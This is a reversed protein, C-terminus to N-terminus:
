RRSWQFGVTVVNYNDTTAVTSRAAINGTADTRIKMEGQGVASAPTWGINSIGTSALPSTPTTDAMDPCYILVFGQSGADYASAMINAVVSFNLPVSLADTRRSTTLTNTLNVDSRPVSWLFELGGGATEYTKFAVVAASARKFWGILRKFDYNTPMTPATSSTSFLVDTVGTDSRAIAWIYYDTNAISGTDLGGQNTGVAWSADLRKTLASLQIWYANTADMCGGAAIDIDNTADSGNNAYTLGNIHGSFPTVDAVGVPAASRAMVVSGNSGIAKRRVILANGGSTYATFATTDIGISFTTSSLVTAVFRRGNLQTMGSINELKGADGSTLGHDVTTTIVGPNAQTIASISAGNTIIADGKTTLLSTRMGIVTPTELHFTPTGTTVTAVQVVIQADAPIDGAVLADGNPWYIIGATLSNVALTPNAGSNANTAKFAFRQGVVYASIGPTPAIAYATATGTDAAYDLVSGIVQDARAYDTRASAVAVGTHKFGGMPLNATPVTQGDKAISGTLATAIDSNNADVQASEITTGAVFNPYPNSYNGAGDRAM